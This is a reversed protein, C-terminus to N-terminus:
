TPPPVSAPAASSEAPPSVDARVKPLSEPYNAQVFALLKERVECRLDFAAGSDAASVLARLEVSRDTLNTVNLGWARKDWKPSEQLIELLKQRVPEVPITYDAYLYVTGLLETSRRTWNQFPKELFYTVPVVLRRMDWLKVVVYSLTIDEITGFEGEVLVGDQIRIPQTIAIQLGAFLTAISRQAAFGVTIGIIGASALISMGITRIRAFTMLMASLAVVLIIVVVIQGVVSLQTELARAKMDGKAEIGYRSLIHDRCALTANTLAWAVTAIICLSLIHQVVPLSQASLPLAPLILTLALLPILLRSPRRLREVLLSALMTPMRHSLRALLFFLVIQFCIAALLTALLIAGTMLVDEWAVAGVAMLHHHLDNLEARM